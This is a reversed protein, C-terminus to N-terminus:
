NAPNIVRGMFLISNTPNEKIIFVFPHDVIFSIPLKPASKILSHVVATAAAAESGKENIEFFVKHIINSIYLNKTGTMGSFDADDTFAKHMGMKFLEEKVDYNKTLKFKPIVVIIRNVHRLLGITKFLTEKTLFNEVDRLPVGKKPLFIIMSCENGKYPLELTQMIDNEMYRLSLTSSMTSIKISKKPTLYFPMEKTNNINFKNEWAGRFYIANILVLRTYNTIVDPVIIKDIKNETKLKVWENIKDCSGKKDNKFDVNFIRASYQKECIKVFAELFGFETQGWFSNAIRLINEKQSSLSKNLSFYGSNLKDKDTKICLVKAMESETAKKAGQYSMALASSISYPSFFINGKKIKLENYLNFAFETNGEAPEDANIIWPILLFFLPFLSVSFKNISKKLM